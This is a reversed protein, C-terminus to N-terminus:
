DLRRVRVGSEAPTCPKAVAPGEDLERAVHEGIRGDKITPLLM